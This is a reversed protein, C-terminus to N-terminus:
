NKGIGLIFGAISLSIELHQSPRKALMVNILDKELTFGIIFLLVQKKLLNKEVDLYKVVTNLSLRLSFYINSSVIVHYKIHINLKKQQTYSKNCHPCKHAKKECHTFEHTILHSRSKFSRECGPYKCKFPEIKGLGNEV